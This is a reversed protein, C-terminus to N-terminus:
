AQYDLFQEMKYTVLETSITIEKIDQHHKTSITRINSIIKKLYSPGGLRRYQLCLLSPQVVYPLVCVLDAYSRAPTRHRGSFSNELTSRFSFSILVMNKPYTPKLPKSILFTSGEHLFEITQLTHPHTDSRMSSRQIPGWTNKLHKSIM